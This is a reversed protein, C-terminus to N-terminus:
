RAGKLGRALAALNAFPDGAEAGLYARAFAGRGADFRGRPAAVAEDITAALDAADAVGLAAGYEVYPIYDAVGRMLNVHVLPVGAVVADVGIGSQSTVVVAAGQLLLHLPEDRAVAADAVGANKIIARYLGEPESPHPRFVVRRGRAAGYAICALAMVRNQDPDYNNTAVVLTGASRDQDGDRLTRALAAAYPSGAVALKEPPAGGAAMWDRSVTGWAAMVSSSLPLYGFTPGGTIHNQIVLSPIGRRAAFEAVLRGALHADSMHVIISPRWTAVFREIAAASMAPSVLYASPRFPFHEAFFAAAGPPLEFRAFLGARELGRYGATLTSFCQRTRRAPPLRDFLTDCAIGSQRAARAASPTAAFYPVEEGYARRFEEYVDVEPRGLQGWFLAGGPKRMRRELTPAGWGRRTKRRAALFMAPWARRRLAIGARRSLAPGRRRATVDYPVGRAALASALFAARLSGDDAFAVRSPNHAALVHDLVYSLRMYPQFFNFADTQVARGVPVGEWELLSRGELVYWNQALDSALRYSADTIAYDLGEEGLAVDDREGAYDRWGFSVAAGPRRRRAAALTAESWV